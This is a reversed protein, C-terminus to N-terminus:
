EVCDSGIGGVRMILIIGDCLGISVSGGGGFPPRFRVADLIEGGEVEVIGAEFSSVVGRM